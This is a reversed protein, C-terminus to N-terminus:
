GWHTHTHEPETKNEVPAGPICSLSGQPSFTLNVPWTKILPRIQLDNQLSDVAESSIDNSNTRNRRIVKPNVPRHM